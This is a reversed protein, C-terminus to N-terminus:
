RLGLPPGLIERLLIARRLDKRHRLFETLGAKSVPPAPTHRHHHKTATLVRNRTTTAGGTIAATALATTRENIRRLQEELDVQRRLTAAHGAVELAPRAPSAAPRPLRPPAARVLPPQGVPPPPPRDEQPNAPKQSERRLERRAAVTDIRRKVITAIIVAMVVMIQSHELLWNM